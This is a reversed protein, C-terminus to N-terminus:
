KNGSNNLGKYVNPKKEQVHQLTLIKEGKEKKLVALGLNAQCGPSFSSGMKTVNRM